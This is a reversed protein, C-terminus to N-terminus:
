PELKVSDKARLGYKKLKRKLTSESINIDGAVEKLTKGSKMIHHFYDKEFCAMVSNYSKGEEMIENLGGGIYEPIAQYVDESEIVAKPTLVVLREMINSLERVNGPWSYSSLVNVAGSSVSKKYGHKENYQKLFLQIFGFIDEKRERLPPLKLPIVNLRYYLDQRFLKEEVMQKLDRNTASIIRINVRKEETGGVAIFTRDQVLRLLKTQLNM